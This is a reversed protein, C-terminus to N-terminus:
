TLIKPKPIRLDSNKLYRVATFLSPLMYLSEKLGSARWRHTTWQHSAESHSPGSRWFRHGFHKSWSEISFYLDTFRKFLFIQRGFRCCSWQRGTDHIGVFIRLAFEYSKQLKLFSAKVMSFLYNINKGTILM